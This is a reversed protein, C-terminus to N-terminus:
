HTWKELLEAKREPTNNTMDAYTIDTPYNSIVFDKNNYIKEPCFRECVEKTLTTSLFEFVEVVAPDDEKGAVIAQGYLTYPSGEEFFKIELNEGDAIQQVAQFTMGLGIAVEKGVLANVPGSGSSTFSLVNESLKDFYEFAKEEGWANVLSLLFMYGTGSAKPNPMSILNKYQPDLLDEYSTPVDLNKERIVEMNLIIAGGNRYVPAYYTDPIADETYVSFDVTNKLNAFVGLAALEAAYGYEIDHSIHAEVNTGASKLIAAHNGSSKYEFVVDYDPFQEKMRQQMYTIRFDEASTYIIIQKKAEGCGAFLTTGILMALALAFLTINRFTKKMNKETGDRHSKNM